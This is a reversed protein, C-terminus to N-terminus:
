VFYYVTWPKGSIRKCMMTTLRTREKHLDFKKDNTSLSLLYSNVDLTRSNYM